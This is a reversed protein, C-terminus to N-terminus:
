EAWTGTFIEKDVLEAIEVSGMSEEDDGYGAESNGDKEVRFRAYGGQPGKAEVIAYEETYVVRKVTRPEPKNVKSDRGRWRIRDGPETKIALQYLSM